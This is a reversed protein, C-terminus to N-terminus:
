KCGLADKISRQCASVGDRYAKRYVTQVLEELQTSMREAEQHSVAHIPRYSYYGNVITDLWWRDDEGCVRIEVRAEEGAM